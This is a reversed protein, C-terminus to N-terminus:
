RRRSTTVQRPGTSPDGWPSTGALGQGLGSATSSGASGDRKSPRWTSDTAMSGKRSAKSDDPSRLFRVEM